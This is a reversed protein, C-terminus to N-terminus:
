ELNLAQERMREISVKIALGLNTIALGTDGIGSTKSLMTNTERNMEQLLVDLRKGVDGGGEMLRRLEAAHVSLRTLEEQVDSRDALLAAEEILRTESIGSDGLLGKLREYLRNQFHPVAESRISGIEASQKEIAATELELAEALKRGERERYANLDRICSSLAALIEPTFDEGLPEIDPVSDLVGPLALLVNLDPKTELEFEKRYHQFLSLYSKLLKSNLGAPEAAQERNLTVRVEVHGRGISQKLLDRMANEFPAIETTHHFHLDLGRHNVSRLSVTLEGASTQSRLLAFGTM